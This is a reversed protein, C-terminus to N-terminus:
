KESLLIEYPLTAVHKLYSPMNIIVIRCIEHQTQWYFIKPFIQNINLAFAHFLVAVQKKVWQTSLFYVFM